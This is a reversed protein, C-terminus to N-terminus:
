ILKCDAQAIVTAARPDGRLLALEGFYSGSTYKMVAEQKGDIQAHAEGEIIIYFQDGQDGQKIIVDGKKHKVEKIADAIKSREYHDM